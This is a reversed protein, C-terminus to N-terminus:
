LLKPRYTKPLTKDNLLAGGGGAQALRSLLGFDCFITPSYSVTFVICTLLLRGNQFLHKNRPITHNVTVYAFVVKTSCIGVVILSSGVAGGLKKTKVFPLFSVHFVYLM